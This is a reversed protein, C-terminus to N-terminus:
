SDIEIFLYRPGDVTITREKEESILFFDNMQFTEEDVSFIETSFVGAFRTQIRFETLGSRVSIKGSAKGKRLMLNFDKGIAKVEASTPINGDFIFPTMLPLPTSMNNQTLIVEQGELIVLLREIGPYLSFPGSVKLDAISIRWDFQDGSGEPWVLIEQTTGLGNKWPRSQYHSSPLLKRM